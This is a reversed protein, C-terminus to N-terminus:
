ICRSLLLRCCWGCREGIQGPPLHEVIRLQLFQDSRCQLLIVVHL